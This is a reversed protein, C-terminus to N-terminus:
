EADEWAEDFIPCADRELGATVRIPDAIDLHRPATGAYAPWAPLKPQNPDGTAAFQVWYRRMAEGIRRRAESAPAGIDQDFLPVLEAGHFAPPGHFLFLWTRGPRQAAVYRAPCVFDRDTMHRRTAAGVDADTAAPYLALIREARPGDENRVWDRYAARTDPPTFAFQDAEAAAAGIVLPIPDLAGAKMLALVSQPLAWGDTTSDYGRESVALLQDISVARLAPLPNDAPAGLKTAVAVGHAEASALPQSMNLTGSHAIARQFLGRALPTALLQLVAGGGASHGLITVRSRDGGFADINRHVWRLAEVQDLLGYNGSSGHPSEKTLAPHAMFGLLGLRYNFTVVVVGLEALSAAEDGGSGVAYSGGHIWVIVPLKAAGRRRPTWVNLSLCDEAVPGLPQVTAPDGGAATVVKRRFMLVRETPQPCVPGLERAQLAGTWPAAPRPPKWRWEGAPSLAYPIGRYAAVEGSRAGEVLGADLRVRPPTPPATACSSVVVLVGIRGASM